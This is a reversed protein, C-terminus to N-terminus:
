SAQRGKSVRKEHRDIALSLERETINNVKACEAYTPFGTKWSDFLRKDRKPDTDSPRGRKKASGEGAGAGGQRDGESKGGLVGPGDDKAGIRRRLAFRQLSAKLDPWMMAAREGKKGAWNVMDLFVLLNTTDFGAFELEVALAKGVHFLENWFDDNRVARRVTTGPREPGLRMPPFIDTHTITCTGLISLFREVHEVSEDV